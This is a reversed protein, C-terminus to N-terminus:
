ADDGIAVLGARDLDADRHRGGDRVVEGDRRPLVLPLAAGARLRERQLEARPEAVSDIDPLIRLFEAQVGDGELGPVVFGEDSHHGGIDIGPLAGTEDRVRAYQGLKGASTNRRPQEGCTKLARPSFMDFRNRQFDRFVAMRRNTKVRFEAKLDDPM